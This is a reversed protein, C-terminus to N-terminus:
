FGTEMKFVQEAKRDSVRGQFDRDMIRDVNQALFGTESGTKQLCTASGLVSIIMQTQREPLNNLPLELELIGDIISFSIIRILNEKEKSKDDVLITHRNGVSNVWVANESPFPLTIGSIFKTTEPVLAHSQVSQVAVEPTKSEVPVLYYFRLVNRMDVIEMTAFLRPDSPSWMIQSKIGFVTSRRRDDM